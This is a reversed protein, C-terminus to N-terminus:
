AIALDALFPDAAAGLYVNGTQTGAPAFASTAAGIDGRLTTTGTSSFAAPTLAGFTSTSGLPVTAVSVFPDARVAAPGVGIVSFATVITAVALSGVRRAWRRQHSAEATDTCAKTQPRATSKTM